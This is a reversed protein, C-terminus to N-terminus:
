FNLNVGVSFTRNLPESGYNVGRTTLSNANDTFGEPNYANFDSSTVLFANQVSVYLRASDFVRNVMSNESFTYGLTINRAGWYSGDQVYYDTSGLKAGKTSGVIKGNGPQDASFWQNDTFMKRNSRYYDVEFNYIEAGIVGNILISLDFNKYSFENIFGFEFDPMYSGLVARDDTDIEGDGNLDAIRISGPQAGAYHPNADIEAQNKWVGQQHWGYFQGIPDGVKTLFWMGKSAKSLPLQDLGGLDDVKNINKSYNIKTDWKFEGTLNRTHISLEIGKNSLQGINATTSTFGTITPIPNDLLLDTTIRKYVDATLLIRNEFLGFDLGLNYEKTKEWGLESNGFTGQTAGNVVSGNGAGLSYASNQVRAIPDYLGSTTRGTLGYSLRLKLTKISPIASIFEEQDM